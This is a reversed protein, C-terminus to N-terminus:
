EILLHKLDPTNSIRDMESNILATIDSRIQHFNSLLIDQTVERIVPLEDYTKEEEMLAQPDNVIRCCFTKLEIPQEPRDAVMGVFEGASLSSIRSVPISYELQQSQTINTDTSTSSISEREQMTKGFRDSLLRATEGTVQGSIVNGCTNLIVEAFEKGYALRLQSADQLCLTIAMNNSRGTAISKDITHVVITSFEELMISLPHMGKKNALRSITNIYASIIPGYTASKQPNGGISLVKPFDPNNLDLTFDDGTLIYYIGPSTLKALGITATAIQGELQEMAGHLLANVFPNIQAFIEADARLVTFLRKYSTQALEIVHPWSCYKGGQYRCLFWILAKVFNISSESFFEGQKSVWDPNLGLLIARAAEGADTIDTMTYPALCNCRHSRNLDDFSINYFAPKGPYCSKYVQFYNYAIKALDDYKFDYLLMAYGKSIQQKIMNQIIYWTKGSGPSGLVLTGRMPDIINVWSERTEGHYQYHAPLNLSLETQIRREEQPFSEHLRNFIDPPMRQWIIRSFYTGGRLVLLYGAACLLSYVIALHDGPLDLYLIGASAFYLIIGAVTILLGTRPNYDPEKKGRAGLLSVGLLLLAAAKSVLFHDFLGTRTLNVLLVDGLHTTLGQDRFASYTYYYFHLLLLAISCNRIMNIVQHLSTENEGTPQSM